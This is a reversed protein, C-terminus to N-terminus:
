SVGPNTFKTLIQLIIATIAVLIDIFLLSKTAGNWYYPIVYIIFLSNAAITLLIAIGFLILGRSIHNMQLSNHRHVVVVVVVVVVLVVVVVVVV